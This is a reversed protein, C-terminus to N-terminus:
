AFAQWGLRLAALLLAAALVQALRRQPLRGSGWWAGVAGGVLTFALWAAPLPRSTLLGPQAALGAASNAVIFLASAAATRKMDAWGLLVLLPSLYIGGGVSTLGSLLGLAAGLALLAPLPADSPAQAMARREMWAQAALRLAAGALAVALAAQAWAQPLLWRGAIFAAPMSGALLPLIL